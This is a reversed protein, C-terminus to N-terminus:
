GGQIMLKKIMVRSLNIYLIGLILIAIWMICLHYVMNDVPKNILLNIPIFYITSFPLYYILKELSLPYFSLPLIKGSFISIASFKFKNVGRLSTTYYSVVGICLEMLFIFVYSSIFFIIFILVDYVSPQIRVGLFVFGTLIIPMVSFIIKYVFEGLSDSLLQYEITIPKLLNHIIDGKKVMYGFKNSINFPYLRTICFSIVLYAIMSDLSYGNITSKNQYVADWLFYQALILIIQTIFNLSSAAKYIYQTNFANKANLYVYTYYNKIRGNM